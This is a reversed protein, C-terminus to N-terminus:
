VGGNWKYSPDCPWVPVLSMQLEGILAGVGGCSIIIRLLNTPKTYFISSRLTSTFKFYM